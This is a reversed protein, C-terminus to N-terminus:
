KPLVAQFSYAGSGIEYIAAGTESRLYKVGRVHVPTFV